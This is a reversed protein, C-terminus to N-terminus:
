GSSAAAILLTWGSYNYGEVMFYASTAGFNSSPPFWV